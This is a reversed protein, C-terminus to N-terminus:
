FSLVEDCNISADELVETAQTAISATKVMVTATKDIPLEKVFVM